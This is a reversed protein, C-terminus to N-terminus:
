KNGGTTDNLTHVRQTFATDTLATYVQKFRCHKCYYCCEQEHPGELHSQWIFILCAQSPAKDTFIERAAQCGPALSESQQCGNQLPLILFIM